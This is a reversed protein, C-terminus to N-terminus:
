LCVRQIVATTLLISILIALPSSTAAASLGASTFAAPGSELGAAPGVGAAFGMTLPILNQEYNGSFLHAWPGRAFVMVDEGGHTEDKLPVTNPYTFSPDDSFSFSM